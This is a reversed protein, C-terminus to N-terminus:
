SDEDLQNKNKMSVDEGSDWVRLNTPVTLHTSPGPGPEGATPSLVVIRAQAHLRELQGLLVEVQARFEPLGADGAFAENMGYGVVVVRAPWLGVLSKMHDAYGEARLRHGVEDGTWAFSRFHVPRNTDALHIWGQLEGHELLREVLSNGHFVLTDDRGLSLPASPGPASPSRTPVGQGLASGGTALAGIIGWSFLLRQIRHM